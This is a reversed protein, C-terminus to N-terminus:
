HQWRPLPIQHQRHTARTTESLKQYRKMQPQIGIRWGTMAYSKSVGNILITNQKVRDGLSAFSKFETDDYVLRYYIEDSLVYLDADIAVHAIARLEEENYVVRISKLSQKSYTSQHERSQMELM